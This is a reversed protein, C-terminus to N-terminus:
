KSSGWEVFRDGKKRLAGEIKLLEKRFYWFKRLEQFMEEFHNKAMEGRTLDDPQAKLLEGLDTSVKNAEEWDKQQILEGLKVATKKVNKLYVEKEENAM